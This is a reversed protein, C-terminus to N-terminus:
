HDRYTKETVEAISRFVACSGQTLPDHAQVHAQAWELWEAAPRGGIELSSDPIAARLAMLFDRALGAERWRAAQELFCRFRDRDLKLEQALIQRRRQETERLRQREEAEERAAAMMPFAALLTTLIDGVRDEIMGKRGDQWVRPLDGPLWRKIEFVLVDTEVLERRYQKGPGHWRREEPPLLQRVEKLRPRLQFAIEDQGCRAVPGHRDTEAIVIEEEKLTKFLTDLIRLRRREIPTFPAARVPRNPWIDYVLRGRATAERRNALWGAVIPHPDSLRDAVRVGKGNQRAAAIPDHATSSAGGDPVPTIEIKEDMGAKAPPLAPVSIEKGAAVKNWHGPRPRPIDFRDCLKALSQDSIGFRGALHRLPEAWVLTHLETRSLLGPALLTTPMDM